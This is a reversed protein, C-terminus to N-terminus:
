LGQERNGEKSGKGNKKQKLERMIRNKERKLQRELKRQRRDEREKKRLQFHSCIQRDYPVGEEMKLRRFEEEMEKPPTFSM